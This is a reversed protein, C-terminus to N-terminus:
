RELAEAALQKARYFQRARRLELVASEGVDIQWTDRLHSIIEGLEWSTRLPHARLFAAAAIEEGEAAAWAQWYRAEQWSARAHAQVYRPGPRRVRLPNPVGLLRYSELQQFEHWWIARAAPHGQDILRWVPLPVWARGVRGHLYAAVHAVEQRTPTPIVGAPDPQSLLALARDIQAEGVGRERLARELEEPGLFTYGGARRTSREAM